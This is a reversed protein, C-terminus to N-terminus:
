GEGEVMPVRTFPNLYARNNAEAERRKKMRWRQRADAKASTCGECRCGCNYGNITAHKM